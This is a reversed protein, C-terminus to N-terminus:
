RVLVLWPSDTVRVQPCAGLLFPFPRVSDDIGSLGCSRILSYAQARHPGLAPEM